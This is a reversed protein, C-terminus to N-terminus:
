NPPLMAARLMRDSPLFRHSDCIFQEPETLRAPAFHCGQRTLDRRLRLPSLGTVRKTARSMHPQDAFGSAAAAESLSLKPLYRMAKRTRAILIFEAPTIGFQKRFGRSLSGPHIGERASWERLSIEPDRLLDAALLDSWDDIRRSPEVIMALMAAVAAKPDREALRVIIDPDHLQAVVPGDWTRAIPLILVEVNSSGFRDLHNEYAAHFIVDGPSVQHRGSDGAEVYDGGLVIAAFAESHRHRPLVEGPGHFTRRPAVAICGCDPCHHSNRELGM